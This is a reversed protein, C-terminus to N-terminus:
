ESGCCARSACILTDMDSASQRFIQKHGVQPGATAWEYVSHVVNASAKQPKAGFIASNVYPWCALGAVFDWAGSKQHRGGAVLSSYLPFNAFDGHLPNLSRPAIPSSYADRAAL